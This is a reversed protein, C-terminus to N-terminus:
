SCYLCEWLVLCGVQLHVFLKTVCTTLRDIDFIPKPGGSGTITRILLIVTDYRAFVKVMRLVKLLKILLRAIRFAALGSVGKLFLGVVSATACIFDLINLGHNFYEVIGTGLIKMSAETVYIFAFVIEAVHLMLAYGVPMDHYEIAMFFVNVVVMTIVAWEFNRHIVIQKCMPSLIPVYPFKPAAEKEMLAPLKQLFESSSDSMSHLWDDFQEFGVQGPHSSGGNHEIEAFIALIEQDLKEIHLNKAITALESADIFGSQDTDVREFIAQVRKEEGAIAKRIKLSWSKDSKWWAGFMDLQVAGDEDAEMEKLIAAAQPRAIITHYYQKTFHMLDEINIDPQGNADDAAAIRDFQRRLKQEDSDIAAQFRTSLESKGLWWYVFDQLQGSGAVEVLITSVEDPTLRLGIEECFSDLPEFKLAGKNGVMKDFIDRITAEEYAMASKFKLAMDSTGRWWEVFEAFDVESNGSVDMERMAEELERKSVDLKLAAAVASLEEAEVTGDGDTDIRQFIMSLKKVIKELEKSNQTESESTMAFCIVSVYMNAVVLGLFISMTSRVGSSDSELLVEVPHEIASISEIDLGQVLRRTQIPSFPFRRM